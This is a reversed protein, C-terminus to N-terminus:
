RAVGAWFTLVMLVGFLFTLAIGIETSHASLKERASALASHASFHQFHPISYLNNMADELRSRRFFRNGSGEDWWARDADLVATVPRVPRQAVKRLRM